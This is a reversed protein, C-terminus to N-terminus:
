QLVKTKWADLFRSLKHRIGRIYDRQEPQFFLQCDSSKRKRKGVLQQYKVQMLNLMGVQQTIFKYNGIRDSSSKSIVNGPLITETTTVREQHEITEIWYDIKNLDWFINRLIAGM